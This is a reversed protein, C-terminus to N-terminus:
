AFTAALKQRVARLNALIMPSRTVEAVALSILVDIAEAANLYVPGTTHGRSLRVGGGRGRDSDILIGEDRLLDLDRMLTRTSVELDTALDKAVIHDGAALLGRLRELRRLRDTVAAM